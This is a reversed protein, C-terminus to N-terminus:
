VFSSHTKSLVFTYRGCVLNQGYSQCFEDLMFNMVIHVVLSPVLQEHLTENFDSWHNLLVLASLGIKQGDFPWLEPLIMWVVYRVIHVVLSPVWQEHLKCYTENFDSWHNLFVLTSLSINSLKQGNFPWLEPM